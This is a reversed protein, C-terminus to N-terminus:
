IMLIVALCCTFIGLMVTITIGFTFTVKELHNMKMVISPPEYTTNTSYEGDRDAKFISDFEKRNKLEQNYKYIVLQKKKNYEQRKNYLFRVCFVVALIVFLKAM